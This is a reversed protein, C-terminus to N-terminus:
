EKDEKERQWRDEPIYDDMIESLPRKDFLLPDKGSRKIM